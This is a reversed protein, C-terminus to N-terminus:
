KCLAVWSANHQRVQTVTEPSDTAPSYYIPVFAVCATDVTRTCGTASIILICSVLHRINIATAISRTM